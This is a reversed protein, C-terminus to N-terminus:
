KGMYAIMYGLVIWPSFAFDNLEVLIQVLSTAV